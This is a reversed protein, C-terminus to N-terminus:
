DAPRRVGGGKPRFSPLSKRETNRRGRAGYPAREAPHGSSSTETVAKVQHPYNDVTARTLRAVYIWTRYKRSQRDPQGEDKVVNM